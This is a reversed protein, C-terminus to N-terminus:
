HQGAIEESRGEGGGPSKRTHLVHIYYLFVMLCPVVLFIGLIASTIAKNAMTPSGAEVLHEDSRLHAM